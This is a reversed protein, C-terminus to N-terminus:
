QLCFFDSLRSQCLLRSKRRYSSIPLSLRNEVESFAESRTSFCAPPKGLASRVGERVQFVGLPVMYGEGVERFVFARAQRRISHLYKAVSFRTAYYGGLQTSAYSSRGGFPEHEATIVPGEAGEAWVSKPSWAEFNEFEWDGPILLVEYHNDYDKHSFLMFDSIWPHVRIDVMMQKSLIDDIATISWRTPVIKRKDFNGLSGSSFVNTLYYNDFGHTTLEFLADTASMSEGAISDIKKPIKPNEAQRFMSLPASPGMPQILSSFNLRMSPAKSFSMEIDTPKASLAIERMDQRMRETARSIRRGGISSARNEIIERYSRGYLDPLDLCSHDVPAVPGHSLSPYGFSSVFLEKSPGFVSQGVNKRIGMQTNIRSLVPCTRAGCLKKTGKCVVCLDAPPKM